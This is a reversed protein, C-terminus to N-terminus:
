KCVHLSGMLFKNIKVLSKCRDCVMYISRGIQLYKQGELEIRSATAKLQKEPLIKM